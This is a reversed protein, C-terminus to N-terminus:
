WAVSPCTAAKKHADEITECAIVKRAGSSLACITTTTARLVDIVVCTSRTLLEADIREPLFRVRLEAM